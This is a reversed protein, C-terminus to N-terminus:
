DALLGALYYLAACENDQWIRQSRRVACILYGNVEDFHRIRAVLVTEFGNDTLTKFFVPSRQEVEELTSESFIDDRMLAAIDSADGDFGDDLASKMRGDQRIYFLNRIQLMELAKPVAAQLKKEFSKERETLLRMQHMGSFVSNPSIQAIQIDSHREPDYIKYCNRGKSKGLYLTKDIIAFLDAFSDADAPFSASGATGTIFANGNEFAMESRLIYEGSYLREFFSTKEETTIHALDILLLEDGGFRGVLGSTGAAEAIGKAAAKLVEDGADHGYHDNISKFNDLDLMTFTFPTGERILSDVFKVSYTRNLIGTLPDLIEELNVEDILRDFYSFRRLSGITYIVQSGDLANKRRVVDTVDSFSGVLGIIEDGDYLPRKSAIIDREENRIICKGQVKYTSKGSLVMLEDKKFPEPNSHWEMDEDTKGILVDASEFGYYDLFAQNVGVFRRDKDKWFVCDQSTNIISEFVEVTMKM